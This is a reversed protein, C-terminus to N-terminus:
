PNVFSRVLPIVESQLAEYEERFTTGNQIARSHALQGFGFLTWNQVYRVCHEETQDTATAALANRIKIMISNKILGSHYLLWLRDIVPIEGDLVDLADVSDKDKFIELLRDRNMYTACPNLAIIDDVTVM